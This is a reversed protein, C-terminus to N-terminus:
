AKKKIVDKKPMFHAVVNNLSTIVEILKKENVENVDFDLDFGYWNSRLGRRFNVKM